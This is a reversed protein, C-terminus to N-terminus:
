LFFEVIHIDRNKPPPIPRRSIIKFTFAFATILSLLFTFPACHRWDRRREYCCFSTKRSAKSWRMPMFKRFKSRDQDDWRQKQRRNRATQAIESLRWWGRLRRRLTLQSWRRCHKKVDFVHWRKSFRHRLDTIVATATLWPAHRRRRWKAIQRFIWLKARENRWRDQTAADRM